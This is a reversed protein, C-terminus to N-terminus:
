IDMMGKFRNAFRAAMGGKDSSLDYQKTWARHTTPDVDLEITRDIKRASKIAIVDGSALTFKCVHMEPHKNSSKQM